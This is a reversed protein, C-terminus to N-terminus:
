KGLKEAERQRARDAESWLQHEAARRAARADDLSDFYGLHTIRYHVCIRAVWKGHKKDWSVGRVGSRNNRQPGGRNRHNQSYGCLRMNLRRCDLGDGNKHDVLRWRPARLIFRHLFGTRHEGKGRFPYTEEGKRFSRYAYHTLGLKVNHWNGAAVVREYDEDDVLAHGGNTLPIRKM